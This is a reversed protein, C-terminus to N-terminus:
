APPDEARSGPAGPAGPAEPDEDVPVPKSLDRTAGRDFPNLSYLMRTESPADDVLVELQAPKQESDSVQVGRGAPAPPLESASTQSNSEVEGGLVLRAFVEELSPREWSLERVAWGRTLALAGLDERVDGEGAVEFTHHIGSAGREGVDQVGPLSRILAEAQPAATGGLAVEFRVRGRGALREVLADKSGDAVLRGEHIVLVRPCVSEVEALIHSSLIVTHERALERVLERVEIRQLPDLGSTPEDLVLVEPDPLLAVALGVRQRLGRSLKGVLQSERDLVGVRDLVAPVRRRLEDRGLGHLRGQFRLMERVRLERYLPVSEPLYGIRRRVELSRRLVDFGAVELKRARTAPLYGALIRLTTTKGAGNPGLFGVVEGPEVRFSVEDVAVVSGFRRTLHQVDIM